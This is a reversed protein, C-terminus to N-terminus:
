LKIYSIQLKRYINTPFLIQYFFDKANLTMIDRCNSINPDEISIRFDETKDIM